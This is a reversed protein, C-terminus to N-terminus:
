VTPEDSDPDVSGDPPLPWMGPPPAFMRPGAGGSPPAPAFASCADLAQRLEDDDPRQGQTGPQPLKVGQEELCEAFQEFTADSMGGAAGRTVIGPAAGAARAGSNGGGRGVLFVAGVGAVVLVAVALAVGQKAAPTRLNPKRFV